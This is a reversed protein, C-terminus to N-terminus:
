GNESETFPITFFFTSGVVGDEKETNSEVWIRGQHLEIFEHCLILGLGFGLKSVSDKEDLKEKELKFLEAKQEPKIGVGYDIIKFLYEQDQKTFNIIVKSNNPSFKIANSVLNRIVVSIINQDVLITENQQIEVVLDIGKNVAESKLVGISNMVLEVANTKTPSFVIKKSQSKSWILLNQLLDYIKLSTQEIFISFSLSETKNDEKISETLLRTFGLLANFPNMLDHAIISFFKDKTSNLEKLKSESRKLQEEKKTRNTIDEKVAIYKELDGKENYVPSITTEDWFFDGNKKRNYFIGKWTKGSEITNWLEKYFEAPHIGSKLLSPTKGILEDHQYETLKVFSPNIYEIIGKLNTIAIANSTQDLASSLIKIEHEQKKLATIDVFVSALIEIGRIEIVQMYALCDIKKGSDQKLQIDIGVLQQNESLERYIRNRTQPNILNLELSSNGILKRKPYGSILEMQHNIDIIKGTKFESLSIAQPSLEFLLRFKEESERLAEEIRTKEEIEYNLQNVMTELSKSKTQEQRLSTIKEVLGITLLMGFLVTGALNINFYEQKFPIVNFLTIYYIISALSVFSFSLIYYLALKEGKIFTYIGVYMYISAGLLYLFPSTRTFLSQPIERIFLSLTYVLSIIALIIAMKFLLKYKRLELYNISFSIFLLSGLGFLIQRMRGKLYLDLDPFIDFGYGYMYYANLSLSLLYLTLLLYNMERTLLFLIFNFVVLAIVIGYLIYLTTFEKRDKIIFSNTSIISIPLIIFSETEVKIFIRCITATKIPPNLVISYNYSKGKADLQDKGSYIITDLQNDEKVFYFTVKNLTPYNIELLWDNRNSNNQIDFSFWHPKYNVGLNTTADNIKKFNFHEENKLLQDITLTSSSDIYYSLYNSVNYYTDNNNLQIVNSASSLSFLFLLFSFIPSFKRM